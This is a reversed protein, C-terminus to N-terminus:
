GILTLAENRLEIATQSTNTYVDANIYLTTGTKNTQVNKVDSVEPLKILADRVLANWKTTSSGTGIAHNLRSGLAPYLPVSGIETLLAMKFRQYALNVGQITALDGNAFSIPFQLDSGFVDMLQSQNNIAFNSANGQIPFYIVDGPLLVNTSGVIYTSFLQITAGQNYSNKLPTALTFTNGDYSSVGVSEALLGSSSANSIYIRNISQPQNPITISQTDASLPATTSIVSAPPGYVESPDVTMYPPTLNNNSVLERWRSADGLFRSSLAQIGREIDTVSIIHPQGIM